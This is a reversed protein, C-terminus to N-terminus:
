ASIEMLTISSVQTGNGDSYQFTTLGQTSNGLVSYTLASTSAPSDLYNMASTYSISTAANFHAIFGYTRIDSGNRQIKVGAIASNNSLGTVSLLVLIKNTASSPTISASLSLSSYTATTNVATPTTSQANVVQLVSGTPLTSKPISQSGTITSGLVSAILGSAVQTLAM